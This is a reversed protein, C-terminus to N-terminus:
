LSCPSLLLSQCWLRNSGDWSVPTLFIIFSLTDDSKIENHNTLTCPAALEIWFQKEGRTKCKWFTCSCNSQLVYMSVVDCGAKWLGSRFYCNWILFIRFIVSLWCIITKCSLIMAVSLALLILVINFYTMPSSTRFQWAFKAGIRDVTRSFIVNSTLM